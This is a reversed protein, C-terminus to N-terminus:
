NKLKMTKKELPPTFHMLRKIMLILAQTQESASKEATKKSEEKKVFENYVNVLSNLGSNISQQAIKRYTLNFVAKNL